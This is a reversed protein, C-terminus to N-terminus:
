SEFWLYKSSVMVTSCLVAKSRLGPDNEVFQEYKSLNEPLFITISESQVFTIKKKNKEKNRM